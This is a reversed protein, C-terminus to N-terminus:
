SSYEVLKKTMVPVFLETEAVRRGTDADSWEGTEGTVISPAKASVPIKAASLRLHDTRWGYAVGTIFLQEDSLTRERSSLGAPPTFYQGVGAVWESGELSPLLFLYPM